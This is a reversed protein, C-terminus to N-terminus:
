HSHPDLKLKYTQGDLVLEVQGNVPDKKLSDDSTVYKWAKGDQADAATLTLSKPGADTMVTVKLADKVALPKLDKDLVFFWAKGSAHDLKLELHAVHEGVELLEGGNPGKEAHDHGHDHGHGHTEPKATKGAVETKAGSETKSAPPTKGGGCGTAWVGAALAWAVVAVRKLIMIM